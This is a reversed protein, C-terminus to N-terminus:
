TYLPASARKLKHSFVVRLARFNKITYLPSSARKLKHSVQRVQWRVIISSHSHTRIGALTQSSSIKVRLMPTLNLSPSCRRPALRHRADGRGHPMRSALELSGRVSGPVEPPLSSM